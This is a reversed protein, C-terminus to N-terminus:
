QGKSLTEYVKDISTGKAILADAKKLEEDIVVKFGDLSREGQYRMGNIYISPTGRVGAKRGAELDDDVEKKVADSAFDSKFKELDLGVEGAYGEIQEDALQRMNEFLKEEMEWAKGQRHAAQMARAAAPAQPHM